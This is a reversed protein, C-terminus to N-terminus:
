KKWTQNMWEQLMTATATAQLRPEILIFPVLFFTYVFHFSLELNGESTRLAAHIPCGEAASTVSAGSLLPLFVPAASIHILGLCWLPLVVWNAKAYKARICQRTEVAQAEPVARYLWNYFFFSM